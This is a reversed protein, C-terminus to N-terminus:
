IKYNLPVVILHLLGKLIHKKKNKRFNKITAFIGDITTVVVIIFANIFNHHGRHRYCCRQYQQNRYHHRRRCCTNHYRCRWHHYIISPHILPLTSTYSQM